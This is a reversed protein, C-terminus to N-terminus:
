QFYIFIIKKSTINNLISNVISESLKFDKSDVMEQFEDVSNVTLELAM